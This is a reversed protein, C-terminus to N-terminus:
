CLRQSQWGALQAMWTDPDTVVGLKELAYLTLGGVIFLGFLIDQTISPTRTFAGCLVQWYFKIPGM